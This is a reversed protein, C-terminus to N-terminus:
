LVGYPEARFSQHTAHEGPCFLFFSTEFMQRLCAFLFFSHQKAGFSFCSGSFFFILCPAPVIKHAKNTTSIANPKTLQTLQAYTYTEVDKPTVVGCERWTYWCESRCGCVWMRMCGDWLMHGRVNPHDALGRRKYLKWPSWNCNTLVRSSAVTSGDIMWREHARRLEIMRVNDKTLINRHMASHVSYGYTLYTLYTIYYYIM